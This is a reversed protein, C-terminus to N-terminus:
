INQQHNRSGSEYFQQSAVPQIANGGGQDIARDHWQERKKYKHNSVQEIMVISKQALAMIEKSAEGDNSNVAEQQQNGKIDECTKQLLDGDRTMKASEIFCFSLEIGIALSGILGGADAFKLCAKGLETRRYEIWLDKGAGKRFHLSLHTTSEILNGGPNGWCRWAKVASFLQLM